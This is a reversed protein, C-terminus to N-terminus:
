STAPGSEGELDDIFREFWVITDQHALTFDMNQELGFIRGIATMLIVLVTPPCQSAPVQYRDLIASVADIQATRFLESYRVVEARIVKRHNALAAIEMTFAASENNASFEWLAHLPRASTLLRAQVQLGEEARRRFLALFLDDMTHFYYHVLQSRFGAKAAIRRSTVAAYGQELMLAEAADLLVGRTKADPTGIRRESVM